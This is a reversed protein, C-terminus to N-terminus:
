QTRWKKRLLVFRCLLGLQDRETGRAKLMDENSNSYESHKHEYISYRYIDLVSSYEIVVKGIFGFEKLTPQTQHPAWDNTDRM